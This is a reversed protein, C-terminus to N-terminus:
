ADVSRDVLVGDRSKTPVFAANFTGGLFEEGDAVYRAAVALGQRRIDATRGLEIRSGFYESEVALPGTEVVALYEQFVSQIGKIGCGRVVDPHVLNGTLIVGKNQGELFRYRPVIVLIDDHHDAVHVRSDQDEGGLNRGEGLLQNELDALAILSRLGHGLGHRDGIRTVGHQLDRAYTQGPWERRTVGKGSGSRNRERGLLGLIVGDGKLGEGVSTVSAVLLGFQAKGRVRLGPNKVQSEM